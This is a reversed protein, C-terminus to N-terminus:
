PRAVIIEISLEAPLVADHLTGLQGGSTDFQEFNFGRHLHLDYNQTALQSASCAYTGVVSFDQDSLLLESPETARAPQPQTGGQVELQLDVVKGPGPTVAPHMCGDDPWGASQGLADPPALAMARTVSVTFTGDAAIPQNDIEIRPNVNAYLSMRQGAGGTWAAIKGRIATDGGGGGCAAVGLLSFLLWTRNSM